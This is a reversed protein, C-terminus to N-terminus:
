TRRMVVELYDAPVLLAEGGGRDFRSLLEVLAAHLMRRHGPGLPEFVAHLIGNECQQAAIWHDASRHRHLHTRRAIRMARAHEGFLAKLGARTGWPDAAGGSAALGFRALVDRLGATFGDPTWHALAIRGGRRVVRVIEAAETRARAAGNAGFARLAVDFHGAPFPLAGADAVRTLVFLSEAEARRSLRDLAPPSDAVATVDAFRRAAALAADGFGAAVDIAHDNSRVGASECLSEAAMPLSSGARGNRLPSGAPRRREPTTRFDSSMTHLPLHM